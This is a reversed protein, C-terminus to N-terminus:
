VLLCKLSQFELQLGAAPINLKWWRGHAMVQLQSATTKLKSSCNEFENWTIKKSYYYHNNANRAYDIRATIAKLFKRSAFIILINMDSSKIQTHMSLVEWIVLLSFLIIQMCNIANCYIGHVLEVLGDKEEVMVISSCCGVDFNQRELESSYM